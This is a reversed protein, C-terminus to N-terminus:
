PQDGQTASAHPLDTIRQGILSEIDAVAIHYAVLVKLHRQKLDLLTRQADLVDIFPLKGENFAQQTADFAGTAAPLTRERLALAEDHATVLEIYAANLMSEIRREAERKRHHAGAEGYRAALIDGQRRDFLPLPLSVGIVLAVDDVENQHTIGLRGTLDPIADAEAQRRQAIRASIQTAWQAAAPNQNIRQVLVDRDPTPSIKDLEGRVGDFTVQQADWTLALRRYAAERQRRARMLEVEATIVPVTARAQEVPSADGAEVRKTAIREIGEALQLEQEALFIRRDAALADIFRLTVEALVQLRAAEYDWSALRADLKASERRRQIDGGLPFTQALSITTEAADTGSFAGSGAINEVEAEMEPNPWMGAQLIRVEAARVDWAFAQLEPNRAIALAMALRLTLAGAPDPLADHTAGLEHRPSLSLDTASRLETTSLTPDDLPHVVCGILALGLVIAGCIRRRIM